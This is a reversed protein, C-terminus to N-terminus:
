FRVIGYWQTSRNLDTVTVTIHALSPFDPM